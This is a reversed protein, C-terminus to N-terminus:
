EHLTRRTRKRVRPTGDDHITIHWMGKHLQHHHASCLLVLNSEATDGGDSWHKVHHAECWGPPRDCNPVVCGGDRVDLASRIAAPISRTTRGVDLVESDAGLVIRRFNADCTLRDLESGALVGEGPGNGCRWKPSRLDAPVGGRVPSRWEDAPTRDGSTSGAGSAEERAQQVDGLLDEGLTDRCSRCRRLRHFPVLVQVRARDRQSPTFEHHAASRALDLLADARRAAANTMDDPDSRRRAAMQENLIGALEAGEAAPLFGRIDWGDGLPSLYFTRNDYDRRHDRETTRSDVADAWSRMVQWTRAADCNRAVTVIDAAFEPFAARRTASSDAVRRIAHVHDYSIEASEFAEAIEPQSELWTATRTTRRATRGDILQSHHLWAEPSGYGAVAWMGSSNVAGVAAMYAARSQEALRQLEEAVPMVDGAGVLGDKLQRQVTSLVERAQAVLSLADAANHHSGSPLDPTM